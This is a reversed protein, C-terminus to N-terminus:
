AHLREPGCGYHRHGNTTGEAPQPRAKRFIPVIGLAEQEQYLCTLNHCRGPKAKGGDGTEPYVAPMPSRILLNVKRTNPAASATAM